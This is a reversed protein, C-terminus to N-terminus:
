LIEAVSALLNEALPLATMAISLKGAFLVAGALQAQGFSLCIDSTIEAAYGLGVARLLANIYEGLEYEEALRSVSVIIASLSAVGVSAIMVVSIIELGGRLEDSSKIGKLIVACASSILALGCIKIM